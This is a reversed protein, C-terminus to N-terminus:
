LFSFINVADGNGGVDSSTSLLDVIPDPISGEEGGGMGVIVAGIVTDAASRITTVPRM